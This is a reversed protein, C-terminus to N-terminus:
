LISKKKTLPQKKIIKQPIQSKLLNQIKHYNDDNYIIKMVQRNTLNFNSYHLFEINDYNPQYQLTLDILDYFYTNLVRQLFTENNEIQNINIGNKFFLKFVNQYNKILDNVIKKQHEESIKQQCLSYIREYLYDLVRFLLNPQHIIELLQEKTIAKHKYLIILKTINGKILLQEGCMPIMQPNLQCGKEILTPIYIIQSYYLLEIQQSPDQDCVMSAQVNVNKNILYTFLDMLDPHSCCYYILPMQIEQQYVSPLYTNPDINNSEIYSIIAKSDPKNNTILKLLNILIRMPDSQNSRQPKSSLYTEIQSM